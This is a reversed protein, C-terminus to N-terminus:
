GIATADGVIREPPFRLTVTTGVGSVSEISMTGGHIAVLGEALYLGLGAGKRSQVFSNQVPAFPLRALALESPTMGVGTDAVSVVFVGDADINVAVRVHGEERTFKIANSLLNLLVQVIRRKDARLPPLGPACDTHLRVGAKEAVPQVFRLATAVIEAMDLPQVDLDTERALLATTDLIDNILDLLHLGAAHIDAIYDRQRPNSIPGFIDSLLAESFGIIGNLPTRLEHSIGALLASKARDTAEATDRALRVQEDLRHRATVDELSIIIGGTEGLGDTWPSIAIGLWTSTGDERRWDLEEAQYPNGDLAAKYLAQWSEPFHPSVAAFSADIPDIGELCYAEIWRPSAALYRLERDFMAIANPSQTTRTRLTHLIKASASDAAEAREVARRLKHMAVTAGIGIVIMVSWQVLNFPVAITLSGIPTLLFYDSLLAAMATSVLGPGLGGYYASAVIPLIFLVLGPTTGTMAEARLRLLLVGLQLCVALPYHLLASGRTLRM